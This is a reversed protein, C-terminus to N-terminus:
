LYKVPPSLIKIIEPKVCKLINLLKKDEHYIATQVAALHKQLPFSFTLYASCRHSARKSTTQLLYEMM